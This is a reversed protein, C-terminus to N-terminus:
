GSPPLSPLTHSAPPRRAPDAKPQNAPAAARQAALAEVAAPFAPGGCMTLARSLYLRRDRGYFRDLAPHGLVASGQDGAGDHPRDTVIYDPGLMLLTELSVRGLSRRGAEGALNRLGAEAMIASVLSREGSVFGRRQYHLASPHPSAETNARVAALRRRVEAVLARGRAPHGIAAAIKHTQTAIDEVTHVRGLKLIPHGFQRLLAQTERRRYPSAIVLDPALRLLEEGAGASQPYRQAADAFFSLDPDTAYHTLAAIQDPDALAILYQDACLNLSVIRHPRAPETQPTDAAGTPM